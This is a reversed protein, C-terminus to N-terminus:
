GKETQSPIFLTIESGSGLRNRLTLSGSHAEVIKRAIFLGLGSGTKKTTRPVLSNLIEDPFGPGNDIIKIVAGSSTAQLIVSMELNSTSAERANRFLNEMVQAMAQQDFQIYLSNKPADLSVPIDSANQELWKRFWACLDSKSKKVHFPRIHNLLNEAQYQLSLVEERIKSVLRCSEQGAVQKEVLDLASEIGHLSNRVQHSLKANIEGLFATKQQYQYKGILDSIHEQLATLDKKCDQFEKTHFDPIPEYYLGTSFFQLCTRMKVMERYISRDYIIYWVIGLIIIFIFSWFIFVPTIFIDFYHLTYGPIQFLYLLKSEAHWIISYGAITLSRLPLRYASYGSSIAEEYYSVPIMPDNNKNGRVIEYHQNLVLIPQFSYRNILEHEDIGEPLHSVELYLIRSMHDSFRHFLYYRTFILFFLTFIIVLLLLLIFVKKLVSNCM